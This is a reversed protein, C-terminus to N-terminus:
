ADTQDRELAELMVELVSQRAADADFKPDTDKPNMLRSILASATRQVEDVICITATKATRSLPNLDIVFVQKGMAILSECRDGDELPVLVVDARLIGDKCCNSRPGDLGPIKGDPNAGLIEVNELNLATARSEIRELLAAMREPTRYYINVELPCRLIDAIQLLEDCALAVTNGNVSIVPHEAILLRSAVEDIATAAGAVTQEGILYDFAEGRGHAILASDALLGQKMADVIRQRSMLSAYRPHSEPVEDMTTPIHRAGDTKRPFLGFEPNM